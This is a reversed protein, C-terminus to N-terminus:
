EEDDVVIVNEPDVEMVDDNQKKKDALKKIAIGAVTAMVTVGFAIGGIVKKTVQTAM